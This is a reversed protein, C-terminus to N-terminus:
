KCTKQSQKKQLAVNSLGPMSQTISQHPTSILILHFYNTSVPLKRKPSICFWLSFLYFILKQLARIIYHLMLDYQFQNLSVRPYHVILRLQFQDTWVPLKRKLAIWFRLFFNDYILTQIAKIKYHLMLCDQFQNLSVSPYHVTLRFQFQHTSVPLKTKIVTFKCIFITKYALKLFAKIKIHKM